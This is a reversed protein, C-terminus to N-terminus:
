VLSDAYQPEEERVKTAHNSASAWERWADLPLDLPSAASRVDLLGALHDAAQENHAIYDPVTMVGHADQWITALERIDACLQELEEVSAALANKHGRKACWAALAARDVGVTLGLDAAVQALRKRESLTDGPLPATAGPAQADPDHEISDQEPDDGTELCFAKLMTYRSAYSCAKGVGKDQSDVGFGWQVVTAIEEPKDINVFDTTLEMQTRNGSQELKTVRPIAMIRYKTLLPAIKRTVADHSAYTYSFSKDGGAKRDRQVYVADSMVGHLRQYINWGTVDGNNKESM